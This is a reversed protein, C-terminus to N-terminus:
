GPPLTAREPAPRAPADTALHLRDTFRDRHTRASRALDALRALDQHELWALLTQPEPDQDPGHDHDHDSLVASRRHRGTV